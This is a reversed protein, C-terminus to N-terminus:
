WLPYVRLPSFKITYVLENLLTSRFTIHPPQDYQALVVAAYGPHMQLNDWGCVEGYGEVM